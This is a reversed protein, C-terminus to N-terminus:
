QHMAASQASSITNNNDCVSPGAIHGGLVLDLLHLLDDGARSCSYLRLNFCLLPTSHLTVLLLIFLIPTGSLQGRSNPSDLIVPLGM